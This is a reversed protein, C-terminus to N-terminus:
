GRSITDALIREALKANKPIPPTNPKRRVVSETPEESTAERFEREAQLWDEVDHGDERGRALYLAYARQAIVEHNNSFSGSLQTEEGNPYRQLTAKAMKSFEGIGIHMTGRRIALAPGNPSRNAICSNALDNLRLTSQNLNNAQSAVLRRGFLSM